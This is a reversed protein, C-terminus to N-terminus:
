YSFHAGIEAAVFAWNEPGLAERDIILHRYSRAGRTGTAGDPLTLLQWATFSNREIFRGTGGFSILEDRRHMIIKTPIDLFPQKRGTRLRYELSFMAEYAAVSTGRSNATYKLLTKSPLLPVVKVIPVALRTYLKPVLAPALLIQRAFLPKGARMQAIMAILAGMSYGLCYVPLTGSLVIAGDYAQRFEALWKRATVEQMDEFPLGRHGSLRVCMVHLCRDNLFAIMDQWCLPNQNLGHLLVVVGRPTTGAAVPYWLHDGIAGIGTSNHM